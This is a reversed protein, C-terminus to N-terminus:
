INIEKKNNLKFLNHGVYQSNKFLYSLAINFETSIDDGIRYKTILPLSYDGKSKTLNRLLRKLANQTSFTL